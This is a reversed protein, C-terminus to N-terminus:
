DYQTDLDWFATLGWIPLIEGVGQEPRAQHDEYVTASLEDFYFFPAM